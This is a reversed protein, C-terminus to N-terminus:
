FLKNSIINLDENFYFSPFVLLIPIYGFDDETSKKFFVDIDIKSQIKEYLECFYELNKREYKIVIYYRKSLDKEDIRFLDVIEQFLLERRINHIEDDVAIIYDKIDYEQILNKLYWYKHEIKM